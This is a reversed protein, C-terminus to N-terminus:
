QVRLAAPAKPSQADGNLNYECAGIDYARGQPRNTGDFAIKTATLTLGKDIVPSRETLAFNPSAPLTAPANVFQPNDTNVINGSQTYHTGETAGASLFNMGGSGSAFALNNRIQIGKCTTSVFDIGQSASTPRTAANEYLINNVIQVNHCTSGWVVIGAKAQNYAITNNAIIWNASVAFEPGAHKSPDYFSSSSGNLQIGYGANNYIINNTITLATGNMYLGHGHGEFGNNNIINRDILIRTGNGLIGPRALDHDGHIWNRRFTSDHANYFKIGEWCNRIEFGEITIWGIPFRSGSAHHLIIRHFQKPDICHIVPSEGPANLLKIPAPKTGSRRFRIIKENYVGGKVYTTDGAVMADVAYAITLFPRNETGPNSNSGTTAVYYTAAHAAGSYHQCGAVTTLLASALICTGIARKLRIIM